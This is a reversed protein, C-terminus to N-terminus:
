QHISTFTLLNRFFENQDNRNLVFLYCSLIVAWIMWLKMVMMRWLNRTNLVDLLQYHVHSVSADVLYYIRNGFFHKETSFTTGKESEEGFTICLRLEGLLVLAWDGVWNFNFRFLRAFMKELAILFNEKWVSKWIKMVLMLYEVRQEGHDRQVEFMRVLKLATQLKKELDIEEGQDM